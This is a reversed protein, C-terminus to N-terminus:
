KYIYPDAERLRRLRRRHEIHQRIKKLIRTFFSM